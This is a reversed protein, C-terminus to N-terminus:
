RRSRGASSQTGWQGADELWDWVLSFALGAILIYALVTLLALLSRRLRGVPVTRAVLRALGSEALRVGVAVIALV